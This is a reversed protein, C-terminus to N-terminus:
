FQIVLGLSGRSLPQIHLHIRDQSDDNEEDRGFHLDYLLNSILTGTAAGVLVDALYHKNDQIRSYGVYTAWGYFGAFATGKLINRVLEQDSAMWMGDIIDSVGRYCFASTAFTISTHGSFFSHTDSGDPRTRSFWRKAAATVTRTYFLAKQFVFVREYHRSDIPVDTFIDVFSVGVLHIGVALKSFVGPDSSGFSIEGTRRSYNRSFDTEFGLPPLQLREHENDPRFQEPLVTLAAFPIDWWRFTRLFGQSINKYFPLEGKGLFSDTEQVDKLSVQVFSSQFLFSTTPSHDRFQALTPHSLTLIFVYLLYRRYQNM